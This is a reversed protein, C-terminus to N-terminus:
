KAVFVCASPPLLAQANDGSLTQGARDARPRLNEASLAPKALLLPALYLQYKGRPSQDAHGHSLFPDHAPPQAFNGHRWLPTHSALRLANPSTHNSPNLRRNRGAGEVQSPSYPDVHGSTAGTESQTHSKSSDIDGSLEHTFM